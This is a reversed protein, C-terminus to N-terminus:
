TKRAYEPKKRRSKWGGRVSSAILQPVPDSQYRCSLHYWGNYGRRKLARLDTSLITMFLLVDHAKPSDFVFRTLCM